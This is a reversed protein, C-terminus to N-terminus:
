SFVFSECGTMIHYLSSAPCPEDTFTGDIANFRERWMGPVPVTLMGTLLRAPRIEDGGLEPYLAAVRLWECLQWIRCVPDIVAGGPGVAGYPFGSGAAIGADLATQALLGPLSRDVPGIGLAGAQQLLHAWEFHHGPEFVRQNPAAILHLDDDFYEFLRKGAASWFRSHMLGVLEEALASWPGALGTETWALCAELLHMHPNQRRPLVPPLAEAFGVSRHRFEGDILAFLAEAEAVLTRERTLRFAHALAFLVFAQDYLDRIGSRLAGDLAISQVFGGAPHRMPGLLCALGHAVAAEARPVGAESLRTFVFIQRACVRVRKFDAVNRADTFSLSDFFGVGNWDVGHELWLPAAADRWWNRLFQRHDTAPAKAM